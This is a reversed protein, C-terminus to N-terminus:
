KKIEELEKTYRNISKKDGLSEYYKISEKITLIQEVLM